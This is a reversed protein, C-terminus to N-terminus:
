CFLLYVILYIHLETLSFFVSINSRFFMEIEKENLHVYFLKYINDIFIEGVLFHFVLDFFINM